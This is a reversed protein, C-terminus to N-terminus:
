QSVTLNYEVALEQAARPNLQHIMIWADSRQDHLQQLGKRNNYDHPEYKLHKARKVLDM